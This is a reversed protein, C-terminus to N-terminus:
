GKKVKRKQEYRKRERERCGEPDKEWLEKQKAKSACGRCYSKGERTIVIVKKCHRCRSFLDIPADKLVDLFGNVINLDRRLFGVKGSEFSLTVTYATGRVKLDYFKEPSFYSTAMLDRYEHMPSSSDEAARVMSEHSSREPLVNEKFDFLAKKFKRWVPLLILHWEVLVKGLDMDKLDEFDPENVSLTNRMLIGHLKWFLEAAAVRDSLYKELIDKRDKELFDEVLTKINRKADSPYKNETMTTKMTKLKLM